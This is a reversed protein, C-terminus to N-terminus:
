EAKSFSISSSFGLKQLLLDQMQDGGDTSIRQSAWSWKVKNFKRARKLGRKEKKRVISEGREREERKKQPSPPQLGGGQRRGQWVSAKHLIATKNQAM